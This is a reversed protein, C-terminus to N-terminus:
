PKTNRFALCIRDLLDQNASAELAFSRLATRHGRESYYTVWGSGEAELAYCEGGGPGDLSVASLPIKLDTLEQQLQKRTM